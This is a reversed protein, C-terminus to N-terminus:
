KANEKLDKELVERVRHSLIFDNTLCFQKYRKKLSPSVLVNLRCENYKTEKKM